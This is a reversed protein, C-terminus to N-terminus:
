VSVGLSWPAEKPGFYSRELFSPFSTNRHTVRWGWFKGEGGEILFDSMGLM